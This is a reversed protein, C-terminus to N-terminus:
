TQTAKTRETNDFTLSVQARHNVWPGRRLMMLLQTGRQPFPQLSRPAGEGRGRRHGFAKTNVLLLVASLNWCTGPLCNIVWWQDNGIHIYVSILRSWPTFPKRSVNGFWGMRRWFVKCLLSVLQPLLNFLLRLSQASELHNLHVSALYWSGKFQGSM